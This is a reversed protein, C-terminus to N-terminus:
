GFAPLRGEFAAGGAPVAIRGTGALVADVDSWTAPLSEGILTEITRRCLSLASAPPAEGPVDLDLHHVADEVAWIALFDGATFVQGEWFRPSDTLGRTGHLVATSVDHLQARLAAMSPHADSRRRQAVLVVIPDEDAMDEAFATWYTAADVTPADDVQYAFGSLMEQWGGLVHTLVDLRLWGHCRSHGFLEHDSLRDVTRLFAVVSEEFAVKGNDLGITLPM